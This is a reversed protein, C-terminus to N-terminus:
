AIAKVVPPTLDEATYIKILDPQYQGSADKKLHVTASPVTVQNDEGRITVEGGPGEFSWDQLAAAMKAPDSGGKDIARYIMAGGNWGVADDYEIEHDHKKSYAQLAKDAENDTMGGYYSLTFVADALGEGLADAIAAWSNRLLLGTFTTSMKTLGQSGFTSWLQNQGAGAWSSTLFDPHLQKIQLAVGSFDTTNQPLLFSQVTVGEPELLAKLGAVISQGYAYDQDVTVLTKGELDDGLMAKTLQSGAPSSGSTAFVLDSMGVLDTTGSTGGIYLVNNQVCLQAVPVAVASSTPGIIIKVGDAIMEKAVSTGVAPVGTDDGTTIEIPHGDITMTGKTLHDLAANVGNIEDLAQPAFNGTKSVILGIKIPEGDAADSSGSGGASPAHNACGTLVLLGAAGAAVMVRLPRLRNARVRIV